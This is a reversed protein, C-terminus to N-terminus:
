NIIYDQLNLENMRDNHYKIFDNYLKDEMYKKLDTMLNCYPEEGYLWMKDNKAFLSKIIPNNQYVSKFDNCEFFLNMWNESFM